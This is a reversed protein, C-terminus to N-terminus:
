KEGAFLEEIWNELEAQRKPSNKLFHAISDATAMMNNM